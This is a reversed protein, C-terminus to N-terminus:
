EEALAQFYAPASNRPIVLGESHRAPTREFLDVCRIASGEDVLRWVSTRECNLTRAASETLQRLAADLDGRTLAESHMLEALLKRQPYLADGPHTMGFAM